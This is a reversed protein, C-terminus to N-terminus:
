DTCVAGRVMIIALKKQEVEVRQRGATLVSAGTHTHPAAAGTATDHLQALCTTSADHVSINLDRFSVAARKLLKRLESKLKHSEGVASHPQQQQPAHQQQQQNSSSSSSGTSHAAAGAAAAAAAADTNGPNAAEAQSSSSGPQEAASPASFDEPLQDFSVKHGHKRGHILMDLVLM